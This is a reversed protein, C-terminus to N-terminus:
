KLVLFTMLLRFCAFSIMTTPTMLNHSPPLKHDKDHDKMESLSSFSVHSKGIMALPTFDGTEDMPCDM